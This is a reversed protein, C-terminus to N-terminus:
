NKLGLGGREPPSGSPNVKIKKRKDKIKIKSM